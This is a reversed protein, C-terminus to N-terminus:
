DQIYEEERGPATSEAGLKNAIQQWSFLALKGMM